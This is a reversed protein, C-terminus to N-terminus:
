CRPGRAVMQIGGHRGDRRTDRYYLSGAEPLAEAIHCGDLIDGEGDPGALDDSEDAWVAGALGRGDPHQEVDDLRVLALDGYEVSRHGGLGPLTDAVQRLLATEVAAQPDDRVQEIQGLELANRLIAGQATGVLQELTEAHLLVPVLPDALQAPPEALEDLEGRREDVIGGEDHEVLGEAPQVRDVHPEHLVDDGLQAGLADGDHERGVLHGVDLLQAVADQHDVIAADHEVAEKGLDLAAEGAALDEDRAVM